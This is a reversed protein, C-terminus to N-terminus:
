IPRRPVNAIDYALFALVLQLGMLICMTPIMVTGATAQVHTTMSLWWHWGGFLAGFALLVVGALLQLSALPMDRLLYNYVIRKFFNRVHNRAFEGIIRGVKLGSEEDGYRADMPIGVVVVRFTSLRFLLDSEFFYRRSVKECPILKAVDAHIATYGNTPDFLDWYGTSLKTMLSLVANGFIRIGPM